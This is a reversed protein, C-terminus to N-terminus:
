RRTERLLHLEDLLPWHKLLASSESFGHVWEQTLYYNSWLFYQISYVHKVAIIIRFHIKETLNLRVEECILRYFEKNILSMSEDKELWRKGGGDGMKAPPDFSRQTRETLKQGSPRWMAVMVSSLYSLSHCWVVMVSSTRQWKKV